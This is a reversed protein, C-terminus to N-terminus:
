KTERRSALIKKVVERTKSEIMWVKLISNPMYKAEEYAKYADPSVGVLRAFKARKIGVSERMGRLFGAFEELTYGIDETQDYEQKTKSM